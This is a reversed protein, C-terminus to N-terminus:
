GSNWPLFQVERSATEKPASIAASTAPRSTSTMATM